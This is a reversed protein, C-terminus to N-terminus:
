PDPADYGYSCIIKLGAESRIFSLFERGSVKEKLLVAQQLIPAYLRGPMEWHSGKSGADLNHLQSRAIFGLEANGSKVYHFAQSINEGRVIRGTLDEWLDMAQLIERAARGYPAHRPNAIALFRFNGGRLVAGEGDVLGPQPSWLVLKGVAYTFRSGPLAMGRKELEEPRRVDAALFVDYPAGHIIQAFHKGTSGPIVTVRHGSAAEFEVVISAIAQNFNSAVAVQLEEAQVRALFLCLIAAGLPFLSLRRHRWSPLPFLSSPLPFHFPSLDWSNAKRCRRM